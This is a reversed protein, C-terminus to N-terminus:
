DQSEEEPMKLVEEKVDKGIIVTVQWQPSRKKRSDSSMTNRWREGFGASTDATSYSSGNPDIFARLENVDIMDLTGSDMQGGMVSSEMLSGLRALRGQDLITAEPDVLRKDLPNRMALSINGSQMALQLAEAQRSNVMVTVTVTSSRSRSGIIKEDEESSSFITENGVALVKIGQLLTVSLAEGKDSQLRLRFTAVIDVMSGPYLLGEM